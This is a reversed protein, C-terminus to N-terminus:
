VPMEREIEKIRKVQSVKLGGYQKRWRYYAQESISLQYSVQSVTSGQALVIEAERLMGIIQEPFYRKRSM